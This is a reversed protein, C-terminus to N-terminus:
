REAIEDPFCAALFRLLAANFADAEEINGIHGAGPLVVHTAKPLKAAMVEAARLYARDDEGVLVLAPAEIRALEDIVSPAPGAVRRGFAAVAAPDQAAIARAAAQAAPLEPRSGIATAAAKGSLLVEM